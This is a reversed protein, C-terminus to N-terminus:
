AYRTFSGSPLRSMAMGDHANIVRSYSHQIGHSDHRWLTVVENM